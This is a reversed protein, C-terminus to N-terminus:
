VLWDAGPWSLGLSLHLCSVHDLAARGAGSCLEVLYTMSVHLYHHWIITKWLCRM